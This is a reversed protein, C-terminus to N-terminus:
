RDRAEILNAFPIPCGAYLHACDAGGTDAGRGAAELVGDTLAGSRGTAKEATKVLLQM